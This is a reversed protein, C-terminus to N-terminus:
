RQDKTHELAGATIIFLLRELNSSRLESIEQKLRAFIWDLANGTERRIEYAVLKRKTVIFGAHLQQLSAKSAVSPSSSSSICVALTAAAWPIQM